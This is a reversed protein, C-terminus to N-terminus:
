NKSNSFLSKSIEVVKSESSTNKQDKIFGTDQPSFMSKTLELLVANSIEKDSQNATGKISNLIEKHSSLANHRHTNLTFQHRLALYERRIVSIILFIISFIFVKNLINGKIFLEVISNAEINADLTLFCYTFWCAVVSFILFLGGIYKSLRKNKEAEKKFFDGYRSAEARTTQEAYQSQLQRVKKLEQEIEKLAKSYKVIEKPRNVDRNSDNQFTLLHLLPSLLQFINNKCNVVKNIVNQKQGGDRYDKLLIKTDKFDRFCNELIGEYSQYSSEFYHNNILENFFNRIFDLHPKIEKLHYDGMNERLLSNWNTKKYDEILEKLEKTM